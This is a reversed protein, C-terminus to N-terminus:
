EGVLPLLCAQALDIGPALIGNQDEGTTTLPWTGPVAEAAKEPVNVPVPNAASCGASVFVSVSALKESLLKVCQMICM